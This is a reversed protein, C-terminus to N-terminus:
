GASLPRGTRPSLYEFEIRSVMTGPGCGMEAVFMAVFDAASINPFGERAVDADGIEDLRERRLSVVRIEALRELPEGNRRGMVKTCAILREGVVLQKWGTRRTVTKTHDLIQERTLAFSMLRAM